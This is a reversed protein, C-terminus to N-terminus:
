ASERYHLNFYVMELAKKIALNIPMFQNGLAPDIAALRRYYNSMVPIKGGQMVYLGAKGATEPQNLKLKRCVAFVPRGNKDTTASFGFLRCILGRVPYIRCGWNNEETRSFICQPQEHKELEDFWHDLMGLKYAHWAFPLFELPSANVDHYRCCESCHNECDICTHRKFSKTDKDITKQLTEIKQVKHYLSIM